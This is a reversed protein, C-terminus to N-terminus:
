GQCPKLNCSERENSDGLRTCDQGGHLPTPKTCSRTRARTGANCSASCEEWSGWNSYGGDVVFCIRILQQFIEKM